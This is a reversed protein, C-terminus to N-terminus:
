RGKAQSTRLQVNRMERRGVLTLDTDREQDALSQESLGPKNFTQLCKLAQPIKKKEGGDAPAAPVENEVSMNNTAENGKPPPAQTSPVAQPQPIHHSAGNNSEVMVSTSSNDVMNSPPILPTLIEKSKAPITKLFRRNRTTIRGSGQVKVCYQRNPLIDVVVGTKVWRRFKNNPGHIAVHSGLPIVPLCHASKNYSEAIKSNRQLFADEREKSSIVWDKHPKYLKPNTPLYDRLERHLLLQAPSLNIYPLPTNRYQLIAKAVQDNDISGNHDANDLIIRKASKVGLEARGNSQPYESSSKRHSVNWQKLFRKFGSATFQPGGDSSVEEATGYTMFTSRLTSILTVSTCKGPPFHYVIPWGTFRDVISLYAHGNLEFYDTCIQQFPWEPEPTQMMPEKPQSPAIENCATCTYRKNQISANMGPWYIAKNARSKMSSVGQHASHLTQLIYKRLTLPIVIRDDMLVVDKSVTLRDRVEWYEHIGTPLDNRCTPFGTNITHILNRLNADNKSTNQIQEITVMTSDHPPSVIPQIGNIDDVIMSCHAVIDDDMHDAQHMETPNPERSISFVAPNRSLADPGRHWKGPNYQIKFRYPFTKEKLSSLRPNSVNELDRDNLIGVLPKHDTIVILDECGLVFMRSDHLGWTVSLAEGETPKYNKESKNTFRSGAFVLKWGEPCCTPAQDVPCKCHQQLVLYGIGDKCWDTQLCTRRNIEFSQIGEKVKGIILQKSDDFLQQLTDNWAFKSNKKILERFPLMIGSLSYAWALQNVLGFWSRADTIDQPTPFNAISSLIADSPEVGNPTLKLGAFEVTDQCFKFKDLNITIGNKACIALYDWTHYFASEITEDHLLVDDIIKKKRPVDKIIEDYRRTYADGSALYGQPLRLYNYRGWETIFTTLPQSEKDLLIAHYGDVADLITKKSNRPIECAATFPSPSYHTERKCQANLKQLDVTKRPKGNKKSVVVMPSCWEVPTGIPVPTIITKEVDNDLSEKIAPKWHFPIPVPTHRAYPVANENLHINAPPGSMIRLPGTINFATDRFQNILFQELKPINEETPAYPLQLPRVPLSVTTLHNQHTSIAHISENSAMPFPFSPPLISVDLCGKKSFYIRDVQNCIYVPQKTTKDGIQFEIPLWGSCSLKSGGVARVQKQCPILEHPVINMMNMHQPGALCISAGSDPFISIQVPSNHSHKPLTSKVIAPIEEIDTQISTYAKSKFDYTVSAILANASDSPHQQRCVSSFHNEKKCTNCTKGWAPCKARRNGSGPQGHATSGCGSCPTTNKETTGAHQKQKRYNSTRNALVESNSQLEQQDRQATEFAEAHKVVDELRALHGAKVLIGTQLAENSLGRIFQDRIHSPQLDFHCSPCSFECDPAASKLRVVFDKISESDNQHISSFKLRHVTPNCQRTVIQELAKLMEVESLTFFDSVTNLLSHQTTDDCTNYLQAHLQNDPILTIKKFVSWDVLFKRFQANTMESHLQPLKAPPPKASTAIM